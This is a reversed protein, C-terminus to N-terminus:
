VERRDVHGLAIINFEKKLVLHQETCSTSYPYKKM